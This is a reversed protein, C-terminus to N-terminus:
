RRRLTRVFPLYLYVLARWNIMAWEREDHRDMASNLREDVILKEFGGASAWLPMRALQSNPDKTHTAQPGFGINKVLNATPRICFAQNRWLTLIWQYDWTDIQGRALNSFIKLWYLCAVPRRRWKKIVVLRWDKPQIQYEHWRDRWTAWGWMLSFDSFYSTLTSGMPSFNSGAVSFVRRDHRYRRLMEACYLFFDSSPLCDDELIILEDTTEFAWSIGSSVRGRCGMNGEAYNRFVECPWDISNTTARTEEVLESEGPKGHRAADAAIFLQSPRAAKIAEFVLATEAPRNFIILLVSLKTCAESM